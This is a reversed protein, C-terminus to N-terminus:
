VNKEVRIEFLAEGFEVQSKNLVLKKVFGSAPAKVENFLKMAEITCLITDKEVYCGGTEDELEASFDIIGVYQSKIIINESAGYEVENNKDDRQQKLDELVAETESQEVVKKDKEKEDVLKEVVIKMDSDSYKLLLVDYKTCLEFLKKIDELKM